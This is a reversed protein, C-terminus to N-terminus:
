STPRPFLLLASIQVWPMDPRVFIVLGKAATAGIFKAAISLGGATTIDSHVTSTWIPTTIGECSSVNCSSRGPIVGIISVSRRLLKPAICFIKLIRHQALAPLQFSHGQYSSHYFLM